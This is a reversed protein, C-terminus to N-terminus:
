VEVTEESGDADTDAAAPANVGAADVAPEDKKKKTRTSKPKQETASGDAEAKPKRSRSAKPKAAEAAKDDEASESKSSRSAKSPQKEPSTGESSKGGSGTKRRSGSAQSSTSKKRAAKPKAPKQGIEAEVGSEEDAAADSFAPQVSTEKMPEPEESGGNEEASKAAESHHSTEGVPVPPEPESMNSSVTAESGTSLVPEASPMPVASSAPEAGVYRAAAPENVQASVDSETECGMDPESDAAKLSDTYAAAAAAAAAAKQERMQAKQLNKQERRRDYAEYRKRFSCVEALMSLFFMLVALYPFVCINLTESLNFSIRYNIGAELYSYFVWLLINAFIVMAPVVPGAAKKFCVVIYAVLAGITFVPLLFLVYWEASVFSYDLSGLGTLLGYGIQLTHTAVVAALVACPVAFVASVAPFRRGFIFLSLTYLMMLASGLLFVSEKVGQYGHSLYGETIVYLKNWFLLFAGFFAFIGAVIHGHSRKPIRYDVKEM